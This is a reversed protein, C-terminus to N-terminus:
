KAGHCHGPLRFLSATGTDGQGVKATSTRSSTSKGRLTRRRRGRARRLPHRIGAVPLIIRKWPLESMGRSSCRCHALSLTKREFNPSKESVLYSIFRVLLDSFGTGPRRKNPGRARRPRANAAISLPFSNDELMEPTLISSPYTESHLVRRPHSHPKSHRRCLAQVRPIEPYPRCKLGGDLIYEDPQFAHDLIRGDRASRSCGMPFTSSYCPEVSGTSFYGNFQDAYNPHVIDGPHIDYLSTSAPVSYM